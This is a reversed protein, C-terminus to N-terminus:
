IRFYYDVVKRAAYTLIPFCFSLLLWFNQTIISAVMILVFLCVVIVAIIRRVKEFGAREQADADSSMIIFEQSFVISHGTFVGKNPVQRDFWM